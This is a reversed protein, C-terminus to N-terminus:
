AARTTRALFDLAKRRAGGVLPVGHGPLLHDYDVDSRHFARVSEEALRLDTSFTVYALSMGKKIVLPPIATLLMDGTLLAKTAAHRYFVSGETHGPTHHVELSGITEGDELARDCAVRSPWRNEIEALVGAAFSGGNRKMRPPRVIGALVEADRRHAFVKVGFWRQLFRANGAHDSHRHTLLVGSLDSPALGASRLEVLLTARESWHGCDVLWRDGRGGDLLFVNSFRVHHLHRFSGVVARM